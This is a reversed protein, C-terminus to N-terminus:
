FSCGHSPPLPDRGGEWYTTIIHASVGKMLFVLKLKLTPDTYEIEDGYAIKSLLKGHDSPSKERLRAVYGDFSKLTHQIDKVTVSRLDMRYQAHASISISRILGSVGPEKEIDYVKSADPNSLSKGHEIEDVLKESLPPRVEEEIRRIVQCPGGPEGLPPSLDAKRSLYRVLVRLSQPKVVV